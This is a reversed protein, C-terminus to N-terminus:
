IKPNVPYRDTDITRIFCTMGIGHKWNEDDSPYSIAYDRNMAIGGYGSYYGGRGEKDQTPLSFDACLEFSPKVKSDGINNVVKTKITYKYPQDTRPDTPVKYGSISDGLDELREPLSAKQQWHSIIQWQINSLDSVRQSDFRLNRQKTPSGVIIFGLIIAILTLLIGFIAIIMRWRNNQLNNQTFDIKKSLLYYIFVTASVLMVVIVKYIFRSTIEGSLYINILAVLDGIMTAGTLFLTLYIRWKRIWLDAKEAFLKIDRILIHEIIYLLPLLVILVSVPWAINGSYFYGALKDPFFYNIVSFYLNIISIVSVFLSIVAGLHLFFDKPTTKINM